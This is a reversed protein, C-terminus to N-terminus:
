KMLLLRSTKMYKVGGPDNTVRFRAFYVGSSVPIGSNQTANWTVTYRGAQQWGDALNLIERGLIDYIVLSVKGAESLSYSIQTSPNFPNPFNSELAFGSPTPDKSAVTGGGKQQSPVFPSAASSMLLSAVPVLPDNPYKAQFQTFVEVAKDHNNLFSQYIEGLNFLAHKDIEVSDSFDAHLAQFMNIADDYRGVKTLWHAQLERVIVSLETKPPVTSIIQTQLYNLFDTKGSQEYIAALFLIAQKALLSAPPNSKYVKLYLAVADDFKGALGDQFALNFTSDSTVGSIPPPQGEGPSQIKPRGPNPDTQLANAYDITSQQIACFKGYNPPSTGWWNGQAIVHSGYYAYVFFVPNGEISNGAATGSGLLPQCYYEADIDHASGGNLSIVNGAWAFPFLSPNSYYDCYVGAYQSGSITNYSMHPSSSNHCFVGYSSNNKITNWQLTPSSGTLYIGSNSNNEIDNGIIL